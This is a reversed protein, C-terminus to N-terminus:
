ALPRRPHARAEAHGGLARDSQAPDDQAAPGLPKELGLSIAEDLSLSAGASEASRWAEEGLLGRAAFFFRENLQAMVDDDGGPGHPAAAGLLLAARKPEGTHAAIAALGLLSEAVLWGIRLEGCLELQNEFAAQARDLKGTLLAALGINGWPGVMALPDELQRVIPFVEDLLPEALEPKGAKIANYAASSYLGLLRRYAGVSRLAEAALELEHLGEEVPLALAANRLAVAALRDDGAQRAYSLAEESLARKRRQPLSEAADMDSLELLADAIGAVDGAQRSLVVAETALARAQELMGEADYAAGKNVLHFVRARSARARDVIPAADGAADLAANVWALGEDTAGRTEWYERTLGALRLALTPDGHGLSWDFAARLNNLELDLMRAADAEEETVLKPEAREAVSVYYQCHRRRMTQARGSAELRERAYQRVTELMFLRPPATDSSRYLLQKDLLGEIVELGAGTVKQTAELTAGGAFVAFFAFADAEESNLLQHSWELTLRLTRQRAPADRAGSGLVDLTDGLRDSLEEVGLVTIRAAALEIALPLGDLRRCIKAIAGASTETLMLSADHGRARELFLAGAASEAVAAPVSTEPVSLPEVGYRREPEIRLPARSTALVTVLPCAALVESIVSGAALLHEFNDLVLLAQKQGLFREMAQEPSEGHSPTLELARVIVSPVHEPRAADALTVLWAGDPFDPEVLRAVELALRTKGVGGPGTLTVLRVDRRRLLGAIADRDRDRGITRSLPAPLRSSPPVTSAPAELEAAQTLIAQHLERLEPGPEVGLEEVLLERVRMYVDLADSQRGARYLALMLLEYLRERLPSASIAEELEGVLDAHHALALEAEVWSEFAALRREELRAAETQAFPRYALDALAPGRWLELARRFSSAAADPDTELHARGGAIFTEVRDVDREGEAVNLRYGGGLTELRRGDARLARRLGAVHNHLMNRATAPPAEGWLEDVLVEVPVLENARLVLLALLATQQGPRLPLHRGGDDVVEV